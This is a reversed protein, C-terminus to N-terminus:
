ITINNDKKDRKDKKNTFEKRKFNQERKLSAAWVLFLIISTNWKWVIGCHILQHRVNWRIRIWSMRYKGKIDFYLDFDFLYKTFRAKEPSWGGYQWLYSLNDYIEDMEKIGPDRKYLKETKSTPLFLCCSRMDKM